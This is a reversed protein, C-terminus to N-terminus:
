PVGNGIKLQISDHSSMLKRQPNVTGTAHGEQQTGRELESAGGGGGDWGAGGHGNRKNADQDNLGM